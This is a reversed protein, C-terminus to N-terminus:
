RSQTAAGRRSPCRARRRARARDRGGRGAPAGGRDAPRPSRRARRARPHATCRATPPLSARSRRRRRARPGGRGGRSRRARRHARREQPERALGDGRQRDRAIGHRVRVEARERAVLRARRRRRAGHGLGADARRGPEAAAVGPRALRQQDRRHARKRLEVGGREGRAALLEDIERVHEDGAPAVAGGVGHPARDVRAAAGELEDAVVGDVREAAMRGVRQEPQRPRPPRTLRRSGSAGALPRASAAAAAQAPARDRPRRLRAQRRREVAARAHVAQAGRVGRVGRRDRAARDRARSRSPARAPLPQGQAAQPAVKVAIPEANARDGVLLRCRYVLEGSDDFDMDIVDLMELGARQWPVLVADLRLEWQEVLDRATREDGGGGRHLLANRDTVFDSLTAFADDALWAGTMGDRARDDLEGRAARLVGVWTGTTLPKVLAARALGLAKSPRDAALLEALAVVTAWYLTTEHLAVLAVARATPDTQARMARRAVVIPTPLTDGRELEALRRTLGRVAADIAGVVVPGVVLNADLGHVLRELEVTAQAGSWAVLLAGEVRGFRTGVRGRLRAFAAAELEDVRAAGGAAALQVNRDAVALAAVADAGALATAFGPDDPWPADRGEGAAVRDGGDRRARALAKMAAALMAEADHEAHESAAVGASMTLRTAAGARGAFVARLEAAVAAAADGAVVLGLEHEGVRGVVAAPRALLLGALARLADDIPADGDREAVVGAHDIGFVALSVPTATARAREIAATLEVVFRPKVLAGTPADTITLRYIEEAYRAEVSDGALFKLVVVGVQVRCGDRLVARDHRTGDVLTGNTSGADEILWGDPTRAVHAHRRSVLERALVIDCGDQRGISVRRGDLQFRTGLGDGAPAIVVLCATASVAPPPPAVVVPDPALGTGELPAAQACFMDFLKAVDRLSRAREAIAQSRMRAVTKALVIPLDPNHQRLAVADAPSGTLAFAVVGALAYVDATFDGRGEALEPAAFPSVAHAVVAVRALGAEAIVAREGEKADAVVFINGPHIALHPLRVRELASLAHAIDRALRAVATPGRSLQVWEALLMGGGLDRVVYPRGDHRGVDRVRAVGAHAVSMAARVDAEVFDRAREARVLKIAVEGADPCADRGADPDRARWSAGLPGDGLQAILEYRGIVSM